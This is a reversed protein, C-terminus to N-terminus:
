PPVKHVLHTNHQTINKTVSETESYRVLVLFFRLSNKLKNKPCAARVNQKGPAVEQKDKYIIM